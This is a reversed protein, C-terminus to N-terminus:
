APSTVHSAERTRQFLASIQMVPIQTRPSLRERAAARRAGSRGLGARLGGAGGHHGRVAPRSPGHHHSPPHRRHLAHRDGGRAEHDAHLLAGRQQRRAARGGRRARLDAGPQHPVRRLAARHRDAGEGGGSLLSLSQPRKGPPSAVVELGAELPDDSDVLALHAKGGAFLETFLRRFHGDIEGFAALMRERGERNLGAIGRRLRGIAELLDARSEQMERIRADLESAEEEARLNVAGINERERMLRQLKIEVAEADPLDGEPDLGAIEQAQEPDVGLRETIQAGAVTEAQGAETMLGDLRAAAERAEGLAAEAQRLAAATAKAESEASTLADGAARHEAQAQEITGLLGARQAELEAPRADLAAGAKEAENQRDALEQLRQRASAARSAWGERERVLEAIRAGRGDAAQAVQHHRRAAEEHRARLDALDSRLRESEDEGRAGAAPLSDLAVRAM